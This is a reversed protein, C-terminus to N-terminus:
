KRLCYHNMYIAQSMSETHTNVGSVWFVCFAHEVKRFILSGLIYIKSSKSFFMYLTIKGHNVLPCSAYTNPTIWGYKLFVFKLITQFM